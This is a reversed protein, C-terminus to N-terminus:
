PSSRKNNKLVYIKRGEVKFRIIGMSEISKLVSSLKRDRSVWGVTEFDEPVADEYIVEVDYWRAIKRMASKFDVRNLNFDGDKWDTINDTDVAKVVIARGDNLAQQDPKLTPTQRAGVLSTVKVSGELLTTATVPEDVYSNINFHTGLVEVEQKDTSVIFPHAKDKAIEFYGEGDLKVRRKGRENLNASYTLSSAANLYVLSGDPLRVQYTEGKATSLTNIKGPGSKSGKIEYVLQGDATKSIVVGAEKALEGNTADSLKIKKGNALTLTAGSKGPAVDNKLAVQDSQEINNNLNYYYLGAGFIITAIAAAIAIRPWLNLKRAVPPPLPVPKRQPSFVEALIVAREDESIVSVNESESYLVAVLNKVEQEYMPDNVYSWFEEQEMETASQNLHLAFLEDLRETNKTM